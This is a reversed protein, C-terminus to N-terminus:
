PVKALYEVILPNPKKVKYAFEISTLEGFKTGARNTLVSNKNAGLKLLAKVSIPDSYLIAAQLPTFGINDRQEIDYGCNIVTTLVFIFKTDLLERGAIVSGVVSNPEVEDKSIVPCSELWLESITSAFTNKQSIYHVHYGFDQDIYSYALYGVISLALIVSFALKKM